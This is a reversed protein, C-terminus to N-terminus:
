PKRPLGKTHALTHQRYKQQTSKPQDGVFFDKEYLYEDQSASFRVGQCYVRLAAKTLQSKKQLCFDQGYRKSARRMTYTTTVALMSLAVILLRKMHVGKSM